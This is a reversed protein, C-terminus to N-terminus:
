QIFPPITNQAGFATAAAIQPNVAPSSGGPGPHAHCGACSNLNFRPGLGSGATGPQTGSVSDIETFRTLGENFSALENANLGQLPHTPPPGPLPPAPQAIAASACLIIGVLTHIPRNHITM